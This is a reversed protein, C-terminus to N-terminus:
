IRNVTRFYRGHRVRGVHGIKLVIRKLLFGSLSFGSVGTDTVVFDSTSILISIRSLRSCADRIVTAGSGSIVCLTIRGRCDLGSVGGRPDGTATCVDLWAYRSFCLVGAESVDLAPSGMCIRIGDLLCCTDGIVTVDSASALPVNSLGAGTGGACPCAGFEERTGLSM